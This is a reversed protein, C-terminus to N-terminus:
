YVQNIGRWPDDMEIDITSDLRGTRLSIEKSVDKRLARKKSSTFIMFRIESSYRNM